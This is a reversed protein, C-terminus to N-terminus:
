RKVNDGGEFTSAGPGPTRGEAADELHQSLPNEQAGRPLREAIPVAKDVSHQLADDTPTPQDPDALDGERAVDQEQQQAEM